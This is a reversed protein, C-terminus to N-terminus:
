CRRYPRSGRRRSWMRGQIFFEDNQICFEDNQFCFEDSKHLFAGLRADLRRCLRRFEPQEIEGSKDDDVGDFTRRLKAEELDRQTSEWREVMDLEDMETVGQSEEHRERLEAAHDGDWWVRFEDFTTEGDGDEDIIELAEQVEAESDGWRESSPQSIRQCLRRFEDPDITGGKDNDFSDFTERVYTETYGASAGDFRARLKDLYSQLAPNLAKNKAAAAPDVEDVVHEPAVAAALLQAALQGTAGGDGAAAREARLQRVRARDRKGRQVAAIKTAASAYEENADFWEDPEKEEEESGSPTWGTPGTPGTDAAPAGGRVAQKLALQEAGSTFTLRGKVSPDVLVPAMELVKEDPVEHIWSEHVM